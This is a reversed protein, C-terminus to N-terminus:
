HLPTKIFPLLLNSVLNTEHHNRQEIVISSWSSLPSGIFHNSKFCIEQELLSLYYNDNNFRKSSPSQLNLIDKASFTAPVMQKVFNFLDIASDHTFALYIKTLNLMKMQDVLVRAVLQRDLRALKCHDKTSYSDNARCWIRQYEENLRWHVALLGDANWLQKSLSTQHDQIWVPRRLHKFLKNHLDRRGHFVVSADGYPYIYGLCRDFVDRGVIKIVSLINELIFLNDGIPPVTVDSFKRIFWMYTHLQAAFDEKWRGALGNVMATVVHGCDAVFQHETSIKIFKSLEELDITENMTYVKNVTGTPHDFFPSPVLTRNTLHAFAIAATLAQLQNNPGQNGAFFPYIYRPKIINTKSVEIQPSHSRQNISSKTQTSQNYCIQRIENQLIDEKDNQYILWEFYQYYTAFVFALGFGLLVVKKTFRM